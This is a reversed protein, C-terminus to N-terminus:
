NEDFYENAKEKYYKKYSPEAYRLLEIKKLKEKNYQNFLNQNSKKSNKGSKSERKEEFGREILAKESEFLRTLIEQQRNITEKNINKNIINKVEEVDNTQNLKQVFTTLNKNFAIKSEFSKLITDM